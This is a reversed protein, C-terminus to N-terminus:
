QLTCFGAVGLQLSEFNGVAHPDTHQTAPPLQV